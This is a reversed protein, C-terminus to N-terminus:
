RPNEAGYRRWLEHERAFDVTEAGHSEFRFVGSEHGALTGALFNRFAPFFVYTGDELFNFFFSGEAESRQPDFFSGDGALDVIVGLWPDRYGALAQFHQRQIASMARVEGRHMDRAALAKDLPVFHRGAFVSPDNHRPAGNRWRYLARLDHPLLFHHEKELEDIRADTLGPQLSALLEPAKEGLLREFRGLLEEATQPVPPPMPPAKPYAVEPPPPPPMLMSPRLSLLRATGVLTIGGIILLGIVVGQRTTMEM